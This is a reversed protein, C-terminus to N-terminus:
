ALVLITAYASGKSKIMRKPFINTWWIKGSARVKENQAFMKGLCVKKICHLDKEQHLFMKHIMTDCWHHSRKWWSSCLMRSVYFSPTSSFSVNYWTCLIQPWAYTAQPLHADWALYAPTVNDHWGGKKGPATFLGIELSKWSFRSFLM